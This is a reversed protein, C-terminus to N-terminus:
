LTIVEEFRHFLSALADPRLLVPAELALQEPTLGREELSAACVFLDSVGFMPLAKLNAGLDKMELAGPQQDKLLQFVGDDMFLMALPLDYAGGALAIDLAERAALGSWPATRSVILMSKAM